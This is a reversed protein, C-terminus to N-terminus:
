ATAHLLPLTTPATSRMGLMKTSCALRCVVQMCEQLYCWHSPLLFPHGSVMAHQLAKAVMYSPCHSNWCAQCSTQWVKGSVYECCNVARTHM